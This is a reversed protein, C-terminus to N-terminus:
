AAPAEGGGRAKREKRPTGSPAHSPQSHIQLFHTPSHSGLGLSQAM